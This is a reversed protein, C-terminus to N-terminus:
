NGGSFPAVENFGWTSWRGAMTWGEGEPVTADAESETEEAEAREPDELFACVGKAGSNRIQLVALRIHEFLLNFYIHISQICTM